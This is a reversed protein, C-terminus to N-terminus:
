GRQSSRAEEQDLASASRFSSHNHRRVERVLRAGADAVCVHLGANLMEVKLRAGDKLTCNLECKYPLSTGSMGEQVLVRMSAIRSTITGLQLLLIREIREISSEDINGELVIQPTM